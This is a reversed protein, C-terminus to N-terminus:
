RQHFQLRPRVFRHRSRTRGVHGTMAMPRPVRRSLPRLTSTHFARESESYTQAQCERCETRVRMAFGVGIQNSGTVDNTSPCEDRHPCRGMSDPDNSRLPNKPDRRRGRGIVGLSRNRWMLQQFSGVDGWLIRVTIKHKAIKLYTRECGFPFSLHLHYAYFLCLMEDALWALPKGTAFPGCKRPKPFTPNVWEEPNARDTNDAHMRPQRKDKARSEQGSKRLAEADRHHIGEQKIVSFRSARM